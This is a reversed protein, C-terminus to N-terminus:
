PGAPSQTAEGRGEALLRDLAARDFYRGNAMVALITTTTTIDALPNTDLLVLDAVKGSKITGLSDTAGLFRAPNLTAAQLAELPTLGDGALYALEQHVSLGPHHEPFRGLELSLAYDTGTLFRRVGLRHLAQVYTRIAQRRVEDNAFLQYFVVATPTIWTGNRLYAEAVRTCQAMVAASDDGNSVAQWCEKDVNIHEISSMGSDAGEVNTLATPVHGVVPLGVRRAERLVVFLLDRDNDLAVNNGTGHYKAFAVGIVKLSDIVRRADEPTAITPVNNLDVSPGIGRPGARTGAMVERQWTAFSDPLAGRQAMERIGTVGYAIFQPYLQGADDDVHAHMDWLGPILYKGQAAIVQVGQPMEIADVMGVTQIRNGAIVVRQNPVLKGEEVDVVTVGDFVVSPTASAPQQTNAIDVVAGALLFAAFGSRMVTMM